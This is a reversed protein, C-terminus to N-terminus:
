LSNPSAIPLSGLARWLAPCLHHSCAPPSCPQKPRLAPSPPPPATRGPTQWGPALAEARGPHRWTWDNRLTLTRQDWGAKTSQFFFKDLSVSTRHGLPLSLNCSPFGKGDVARLSFIRRLALHSFRQQGHSAVTAHTLWPLTLLKNSRTNIKKLRYCMCYLKWFTRTNGRLFVLILIGHLRRRRCM